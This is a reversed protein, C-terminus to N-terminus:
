WNNRTCIWRVILIRLDRLLGIRQAVLLWTKVATRVSPDQLCHLEPVWYNGWPVIDQWECNEVLVELMLESAPYNCSQELLLRQEFNNAYLGRETIAYIAENIWRKPNYAAEFFLHPVDYRLALQFKAYSHGADAARQLYMKGRSADSVYGLGFEDSCHLMYGVFYCVPIEGGDARRVLDVWFPVTKLDFMFFTGWGAQESDGILAVNAYYDNEKAVAELLLEFADYHNNADHEVVAHSYRSGPVHGNPDHLVLPIRGEAM